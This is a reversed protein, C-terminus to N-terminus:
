LLALTAVIASPLAALLYRDFFYDYPLLLVVIGVGFVSPLMLRGRAAQRGGRLTIALLLIAGLLSAFTALARAWDSLNISQPLTGSLSEVQFGRVSLIHGLQPFRLPYWRLSLATMALSTAVIALAGLGTWWGPH